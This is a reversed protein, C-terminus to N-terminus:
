PSTPGDNGSDFFAEVNGEKAESVGDFFCCLIRMCHLM